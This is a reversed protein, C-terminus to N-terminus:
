PVWAEGQAAETLALWREILTNYSDETIRGCKCIDENYSVKMGGILHVTTTPDLKGRRMDAEVPAYNPHENVFHPDTGVNKVCIYEEIVDKKKQLGTQNHSFLPLCFMDKKHMWAVVMMRRKSYAPGECTQTLRRDILLVNPNLNPTHFPISVIEGLKFSGKGFGSRKCVVTNVPGYYSMNSNMTMKSPAGMRSGGPGWNSPFQTQTPGCSPNYVPAAANLNMTGVQSTISQARSTQPAQSRTYVANRAMQSPAASPAYGAALSRGGNNVWVSQKPQSATGAAATAPTPSEAITNLQSQATNLRSPKIASGSKTGGLPM